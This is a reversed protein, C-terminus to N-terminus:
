RSPNAAAANHAVQRVQLSAGDLIVSEDAGPRDDEVMGHDLSPGGDTGIRDDRVPHEHRGAGQSDSNRCRNAGTSRAQGHDPDRRLLVHGVGPPVTLFKPYHSTGWGRVIESFECLTAANSLFDGLTDINLDIIRVVPVKSWRPIVRTWRQRQQPSRTSGRRGSRPTAQHPFQRRTPIARSVRSV